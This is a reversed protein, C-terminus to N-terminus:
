RLVLPLYVDNLGPVWAVSVTVTSEGFNGLSDYATLTILYDGAELLINAAPGVDVVQGEITWTYTFTDAASGALDSASGSLNIWQNAIFSQGDAPTHITTLPAPYPVTFTGSSQVQVTHFGDSAVLQIKGGQGGPLRNVDVIYENGTLNGAVPYWNGGEDPSYFISFHLPDSDDDGALWSITEQGSWSEGGAPATVTVTPPNASAEISDLVLGNHKLLIRAANEQAPIQYSFYVTDLPVGEPDTFVATFDMALLVVQSVNQVEISYDGTVVDTSAIGPLVQIPDLSGTGSINLQGSIYYLSAVTETTTMAADPSVPTFKTFMAQWRYPSIWQIPRRDTWCYSMYDDRSAPVVTDRGGGGDDWPRTTDFGVEQISDNGTYPWSLDPGEAGCGWSKSEVDDPDAVHRGWTGARSRDLDHNVEHVMTTSNFDRGDAQGVVVRGKGGSYVPDSTGVAKPDSSVKFGFLLDPMASSDGSLARAQALARWYDNLEKKMTSFSIVGTTGIETWPRHVFTVSPTPFLRALVQEQDVMDANTPINPSNASGENFPFVWIEPVRREYFIVAEQVAQPNQGDLNEAIATLETLGATTWSAPLAFNATHSLASRGIAPPITALAVLPSGPLDHGDKQGFLFVRLLAEDQVEPYVRVVTDKDAVLHLSNNVDQIAQTVEVEFGNAGIGTLTGAPPNPRLGSPALTIAGLESFDAPFGAPNDESFAPTQSLTRVGLRVVDGPEAGITALDIGIEWVRHRNCSFKPIFGTFTLGLSGDLFFCGYGAGYASRLYTSNAPLFSNPGSYEDLILDGSSDLRFNLDWGADIRQNNWIDFSLWFNDDGLNDNGTDALMDLLLYLRTEDSRATLFGKAFSVKHRVDWEGYLLTGDLGPPPDAFGATLSFAPQPAAAITIGTGADRGKDGQAELTFLGAPLPSPLTLLESFTTQNAAVTVTGAIPWSDANKKLQFSIIEGAAWNSGDVRIADGPFIDGGTVLSIQANDLINVLAQDSFGKTGEATVVHAGVTAYKPLTIDYNFNATAAGVGDFPAGDDWKFILTEGVIAEIVNVTVPSGAYGNPAPIEIQGGHNVIFIDTTSGVASGTATVVVPGTITNAPVDFIFSGAAGFCGSSGDVLTQWLIPLNNTDPYGWELTVDDNGVWGCGSAATSDGPLGSDPNLALSREIVRFPVSVVQGSDAGTAQITKAGLTATIPIALTPETPGGTTICGGISTGWSDFIQGSGTFSFDIVEEAFWNCGALPIRAGAPGEAPTLLITPGQVWYGAGTIPNGSDPLAWLGLLGDKKKPLRLTDDICGTSPDVTPRALLDNDPQLLINLTSAGDWGCGSISIERDSPGQSPNLHLQPLVLEFPHALVGSTSGRAQVSHIGFKSSGIREDALPFQGEFCGKADITFTALDIEPDDWWVVVTEGPVWGCPFGPAFVSTIGIDTELGALFPLLQFSPPILPSDSVVWTPDQSDVGDSSGLRAVQGLGTADAAFQGSGEDFPWYAVLGPEDGQLRFALTSVIQQQSRAVNWIRVEDITGQFTGTWAGIFLYNVDTVDGSHAQSGAPAGDLYLQITAGDYTAALHHWEDVLLSGAAALAADCNGSCVSMGWQSHDATPLYMVWGGGSNPQDSSRGSVLGKFQVPGTVVAPKVWAEITFTTAFDFNGVDLVRAYDNSGDFQLAYDEQSVAAPAAGNVAPDESRFAVPRSAAAYGATLLLLLSLVVLLPLEKSIKHRRNAGILYYRM